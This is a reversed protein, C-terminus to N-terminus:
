KSYRMVVNRSDVRVPILKLDGLPLKEIRRAVEQAELPSLAEFQATNQVFVKPSWDAFFSQKSLAYEIKRYNLYNDIGEITITVPYSELKGEAITRELEQHFENFIPELAKRAKESNELQKLTLPLEESVSLVTSSRTSSYLYIDVRPMECSRCQNLYVWILLNSNSPALSDKLSLVDRETRPPQSPNPGAFPAAELNLKKLGARLLQSCQQSFVSNGSQTFYSSNPVSIGPLSDSIIFLPKLQNNGKGKAEAIRLWGKLAEADLQGSLELIDKTTGKQSVKYNLIYSEAFQPTVFKEFQSSKSGLYDRLWYIVADQKLRSILQNSSDESESGNAASPNANTPASSLPAAVSFPVEGLALPTLLLVLPIFVRNVFNM